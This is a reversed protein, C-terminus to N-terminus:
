RFASTRKVVRASPAGKRPGHRGRGGAEAAAEAGEAGGGGQHGGGRRGGGVGVDGVEQRRGGRGAGVVERAPRGRRMGRRDHEDVARELARGVVPQGDRRLDLGGAVAHERELVAVPVPSMAADAPSSWRKTSATRAAVCASFTDRTPWECPPMIGRQYM